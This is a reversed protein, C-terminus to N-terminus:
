KLSVSRDPQSQGGSIPQSQKVSGAENLDIKLNVREGEGAVNVDKEPQPDYSPFKERLEADKLAYKSELEKLKNQAIMIGYSSIASYIEMYRSYNENVVAREAQTSLGYKQASALKKLELGEARWNNINPRYGIKALPNLPKKQEQKPPEKVKEIKEDEIILPENGANNAIKEQNSPINVKSTLGFDIESEDNLFETNYRMAADESEFENVLDKDIEKEDLAINDFDIEDVSADEIAFGYEEIEAENVDNNVSLQYKIARADKEFEGLVTEKAQKLVREHGVLFKNAIMDKILAADRQEANNRFPHFIKWFFGRKANAHELALAYKYIEAAKANSMPGEKSTSARALAVMDRIRLEGNMYRGAIEQYEYIEKNELANQVMLSLNKQGVIGGYPTPAQKGESKLQQRLPTILMEEYDSMMDHLSPLNEGALKRDAIASALDSYVHWYAANWGSQAAKANLADANFAAKYKANFAQINANFKELYTPM